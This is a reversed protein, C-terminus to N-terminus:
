MALEMDEPYDMDEEQEAQVLREEAEPEAPPGPDQERLAMQTQGEEVEAIDRAAMQIRMPDEAVEPQALLVTQQEQAEPEAQAAIHHGM